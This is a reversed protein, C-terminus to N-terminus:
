KKKEVEAILRRDRFGRAVLSDDVYFLLRQAEARDAPDPALLAIRALAIAAERDNLRALSALATRRVIPHPDDTASLIAALDPPSVMGLRRVADQRAKWDASEISKKLAEPDAPPEPDALRRWGRSDADLGAMPDTPLDPSLPPLGLYLNGDRIIQGSGRIWPYFNQGAAHRQLDAFPLLRPGPLRGGTLRIESIDRWAAGSPTVACLDGARTEIRLVEGSAEKVDGSGLEEIRVRGAGWPNRAQCAGGVLSRVSFYLVRGERQEASLLFAGEVRLNAFRATEGALMGPFLHVANDRVQLLGEHVAACLVNTGEVLPIRGTPWDGHRLDSLAILGNPKLCFRLFPSYFLRRAQEPLDLRSAVTPLWGATFGVPEFGGDFGPFAEHRAVGRFAILGTTVEFTRLFKRYLPHGPTVECAPYIASFVSPHCRYPQAISAAEHIADADQPYDFLRDRAEQWLHRTEADEGLVEAADILHNLLVGFNARDIAPDVDTGSQEPSHSHLIHLRGDEGETMVSRGYRAASAMIPYLYDRLFETDGTLKYHQYFNLHFWATSSKHPNPYTTAVWRHGGAWLPLMQHPVEMGAHPSHEIFEPVMELFTRMYTYGLDLRNAPYISWWMLPTQADTTYGDMWPPNDQMYSLGMFSIAQESRSVCAQQYLGCCYAHEIFRDPLSIFSANWHRGWWARHAARDADPDTEMSTKVLGMARNLPEPAERDTAIAVLIEFDLSTSPSATFSTQAGRADTQYAVQGEAGQISAVLAYRLNPLAHDLYLTRDKAGARVSSPPSPPRFPHVPRELRLVPSVPTGSRISCRIRTVNRASHVCASVRAEWGPGTWTRELRSEYLSLRDEFQDTTADFPRGLDLALLGAWCRGTGVGKSDTAWLDAKQTYFRFEGAGTIMGGFDGNGLLLGDSWHDVPRRYVVEHQALYDEVDTRFRAGAFPDGDWASAEIRRKLDSRLRDLRLPFRTRHPVTFAGSATQPGTSREVVIEVPVEAGVEDPRVPVWFGLKVEADQAIDHTLAKVEQGKGDKRRLTIKTGQALAEEDRLFVFVIQRYVGEPDTVAEPAAYIRLIRM